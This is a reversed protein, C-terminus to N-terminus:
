CTTFLQRSFRRGNSMLVELQDGVVSYGMGGIGISSEVYILCISSLYPITLITKYVKM